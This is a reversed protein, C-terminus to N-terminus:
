RACFARLATADLAGDHIASAILAAHIGLAQLADLDAPHRVGGAAIIKANPAAQATEQLRLLAPGSGAGVRDLTMVIVREPWLEPRKYLAPPGLPREDRTDLSLIANPCLRLLAALEDATSLSEAGIVPVIRAAHRWSALASATGLGADLWVELPAFRGIIEGVVRTHEGCHLIADLDAVYLASFPALRLLAEVVAVPESSTTLMSTLPRYNSRDGRRAHVVAGGMLDIVPVIQV